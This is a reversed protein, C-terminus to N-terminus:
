AIAIQEMARSQLEIDGGRHVSEALLFWAVEISHGPNVQQKPTVVYALGKSMGAAEPVQPVQVNSSYLESMLWFQSPLVTSTKLFPMMIASSVLLSITIIDEYSPGGHVKMKVKLSRHPIYPLEWAFHSLADTGGELIGWNNNNDRSQQFEIRVDLTENKSLTHLM